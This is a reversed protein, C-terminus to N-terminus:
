GGSRYELTDAYAVRVGRWGGSEEQMDQLVGGAPDGRDEEGMADPRGELGLALHVAEGGIHEVVDGHDQIAQRGHDGRSDAADPHQTRRAHQASQATNGPATGLRAETGMKSTPAVESFDISYTAASDELTLWVSSHRYFSEDCSVIMERIPISTLKTKAFEQSLYGSLHECARVCTPEKTTERAVLKAAVQALRMNRRVTWRPM